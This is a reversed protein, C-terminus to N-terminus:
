CKPGIGHAFKTKDASYVYNDSDYYNADEKSSDTTFTACLQYSTSSIVTYEYPVNTEPDTKELPTTSYRQTKVQDLSTPLADNTQAYDTISYQINALDAIRKHDLKIAHQKAPSPIRSFGYIGALVSLITVVILVIIDQIKM